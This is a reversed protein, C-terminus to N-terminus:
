RPVMRGVLRAKALIGSAKRKKMGFGCSKARFAKKV